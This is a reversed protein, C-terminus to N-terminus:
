RAMLPPMFPERAAVLLNICAALTQYGFDSYHVADFSAQYWCEGYPEPDLDAFLTAWDAFV